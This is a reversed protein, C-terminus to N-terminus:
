WAHQKAKENQASIKTMADHLSNGPKTALAPRRGTSTSSEKPYAYSLELVPTNSVTVAQDNANKHEYNAKLSMSKAEWTSVTAVNLERHISCVLHAGQHIELCVMVVAALVVRYTSTNGSSSTPTQLSNSSCTSSLFPVATSARSTRVATFSEMKSRQCRSHWFLMSFTFAFVFM